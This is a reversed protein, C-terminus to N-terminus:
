AGAGSVGEGGCGLGGGRAGGWVGM